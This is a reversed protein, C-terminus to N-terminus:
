SDFAAAACRPIETTVSDAGIWAVTIGTVIRARSHAPVQSSWTHLHGTCRPPSLDTLAVTSSVRLKQDLDCLTTGITTVGIVVLATLRPLSCIYFSRTTLSSAVIFKLRGSSPM